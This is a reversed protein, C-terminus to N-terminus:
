FDDHDTSDNACLVGTKVYFKWGTGDTPVATKATVDTTSIDCKVTKVSNYPNVPLGDRLYPGYPYTSSDVNVSTKGNADSYQTLQAIFANAAEGADELITTGDPARHKTDDRILAVILPDKM